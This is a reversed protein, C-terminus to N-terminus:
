PLQQMDGIDRVGHDIRCIALKHRNNQMANSYRINAIGAIVLVTLSYPKKSSTKQLDWLQNLITAMEVVVVVVTWTASM